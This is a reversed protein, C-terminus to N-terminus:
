LCGESCYGDLFFGGTGRDKARQIHLPTTLPSGLKLLCWIAFVHPRVVSVLTGLHLDEVLEDSHQFSMQRKLEYM